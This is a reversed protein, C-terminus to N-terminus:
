ARSRMVRAPVGYAVVDDPVDSVVVAGDGIRASSTVASPHIATALVLGNEVAVRGAALRAECDGFAVILHTVGGHLGEAIADRGGLITSGEFSQGARGPWLDDLFGAITYAGSLRIIDAIVRAHGSAGWIILRAQM